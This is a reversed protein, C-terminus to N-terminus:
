TPSPGTQFVQWINELFKLVAFIQQILNWIPSFGMYRCRLRIKRMLETEFVGRRDIEWASTPLCYVFLNHNHHYCLILSISTIEHYIDTYFDLLRKEMYRWVREKCRCNSGWTDDGIYVHYSSYPIWFNYYGLYTAWWQNHDIVDYADENMDTDRNNSLCLTYKM